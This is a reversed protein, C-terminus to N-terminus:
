QQSNQWAQYAATIKPDNETKLLAEKYIADQQERPMDKILEFYLEWPQPNDPTAEVAKRISDLAQENNELGQYALAYHYWVGQYNRDEEPFQDLWMKAEEYNGSLYDGRALRLYLSYREEQTADAPLEQLRKEFDKAQDSIVEEPTSPTNDQKFIFSYAAIAVAAVVIIIIAIVIPNGLPGRSPMESTLKPEQPNIDKNEMNGIIVM